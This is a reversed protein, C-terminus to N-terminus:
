RHCLPKKTLASPSSGEVGHNFTVHKCSSVFRGEVLPGCHNARTAPQDRVAMQPVVVIMCEPDTLCPRPLPWGCPGFAPFTALHRIAIDLPPLRGPRFDLRLRIPMRHFGASWRSSS